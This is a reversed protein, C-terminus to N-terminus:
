RHLSENIILIEKYKQIKINTSKMSRGNPHKVVDTYVRVSILLILFIFYSDLKVTISYESTEASINSFPLKVPM